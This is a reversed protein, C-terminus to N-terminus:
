SETVKNVIYLKIISMQDKSSSRTICDINACTKVELSAKKLVVDPSTYIKSYQSIFLIKVTIVSHQFNGCLPLKRCQPTVPIVLPIVLIVLLVPIVFFLLPDSPHNPYILHIPHSPHSPIFLIVPLVPVRPHSHIVALSHFSQSLLLLFFFFFFFFM